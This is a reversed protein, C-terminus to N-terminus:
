DRSFRRRRRRVAAFTFDVPVVKSVGGAVAYSGAFMGGDAACDGVAVVWKPDPTARYTRELAERMNPHGPRYGAARRCPAALRRLATRLARSRLLRQQARSNGTRLRQLLRRRSRPHRPQPWAPAARRSRRKGGIRCARRRRAGAASRDAPPARPERVLNQAHSTGAFEAAERPCSLRKAADNKFITGRIRATSRSTASRSTPSSTAKSPPKWCRGNFGPHIACTAARSQQRGDLRVWVLVDGRFGEAFGLGEGSAAKPRLARDARGASRRINARDPGPETRSRPHAGLRACQRRRRRAGSRFLRATTPRMARRRARMSIAAAPAASMAAPASNSCGARRPRHRHRRHPGAALRHQRLARRAASVAPPDGALADRIPRAGDPTLDAAVGGPVVRDMMLRHGFSAARRACCTARALDRLACAHHSFSADNCIAGIDGLHNALRELEAMLARLYRARPPPEIRSRRRSRMRSRSGMPSRATAPPARPLSRPGSSPRRRDDAVRHGQARLRPATRAAGRNRRQRHLSFPGARHHRRAGPGVPIQHLAEGEVPLFGYAPGRRRRRAAARRASAARGLLRSRAVAPQRARRDARLGYLSHIARELRIAPPHLAGVSPFKQDPCALSVVAIEGAAARCHDGHPRAAGSRCRGLPRAAHRPRRRDREGVRRWADPTVISARGRVITRSAGAKRIIEALSPM